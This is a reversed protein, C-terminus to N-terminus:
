QPACAGPHAPKLLKPVWAWNGWLMNFRGLGPISGTDGASAPLNRVVPGGPFDKHEINLFVCCLCENIYIECTINLYWIVNLFIFPPSYGSLSILFCLESGERWLSSEISGLLIQSDENLFFLSLHSRYLSSDSGQQVSLTQRPLLLDPTCCSLAGSQVNGTVPQLRPALVRWCILWCESRCERCCSQLSNEFIM